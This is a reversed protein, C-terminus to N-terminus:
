LRRFAEKVAALIFKELFARKEAVLRTIWNKRITGAFRSPVKWGPKNGFVEGRKSKLMVAGGSRSSPFPGFEIDYDKIIVKNGELLLWRLWHLSQGKDTTVFAAEHSLIKEFGARFLFVTIGGTLRGGGLKSRRLPRLSVEVENALVDIIADLKEIAEGAELGFHFRLGEDRSLTLSRYTDSSTFIPKIRSRILNKILERLKPFSNNIKNRIPLLIKGSFNVDKTKLVTSYKIPM